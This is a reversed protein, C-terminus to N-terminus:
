GAEAGNEPYGREKKMWCIRRVKEGLVSFVADVVAERRAPEVTSLWDKLAADLFLSGESLEELPVDGRWDLYDLINAM